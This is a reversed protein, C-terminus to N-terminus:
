EHDAQRVRKLNRVLLELYRIINDREAPSAHDFVQRVEHEMRSMEAILTPKNPEESPSQFKQATQEPEQSQRQKEVHQRFLEISMSSM